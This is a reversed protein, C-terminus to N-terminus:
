ILRQGFCMLILWHNLALCTYNPIQEINKDFFSSSNGFALNKFLDNGQFTSLRFNHIILQAHQRLRPVLEVRLLPILAM